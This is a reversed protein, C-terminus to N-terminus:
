TSIGNQPLHQLIKIFDLFGHKASEIDNFKLSHHNLVICTSM